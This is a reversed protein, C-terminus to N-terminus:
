PLGKSEALLRNYLSESGVAKPNQYCISAVTTIAKIRNEENLNATSFDYQEVFAIEDGFIDDKRNILEIEM